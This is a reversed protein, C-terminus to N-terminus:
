LCRLSSAAIVWNQKRTLTSEGPLLSYRPIRGYTGSFTEKSFRSIDETIVARARHHAVQLTLLHQTFRAPGARTPLVVQRGGHTKCWGVLARLQSSAPKVAHALSLALWETKSFPRGIMLPPPHALDCQPASANFDLYSLTVQFSLLTFVSHSPIVM